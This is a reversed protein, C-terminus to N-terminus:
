RPAGEQRPGADAPQVCRREFAAVFETLAPEDLHAKGERVWERQLANFCAQRPFRETWGAADEPAQTLDVSELADGRYNVQATCSMASSELDRGPDHGAARGALRLAVLEGPTRQVGYRLTGQELVARALGGNCRDGSVVRRVVRLRDKEVRLVALGSFVGSGGGCWEWEVLWAGEFRGLVRYAAEEGRPASPGEWTLRGRKVTVPGPEHGCDAWAVGAEPEGVVLRSVCTPHVPRGAHTFGAPPVAALLFLLALSM